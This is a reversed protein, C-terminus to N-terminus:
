HHLYGYEIICAAGARTVCSAARTRTNRANIVCIGAESRTAISMVATPAPERLVLLAERSPKETTTRGIKSMTALRLPLSATPVPVCSVFLPERALIETM